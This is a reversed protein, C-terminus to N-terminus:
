GLRSVLLSILQLLLIAIFPTTDFMGVRPVIRRLPALIPETIQDLVTILRNNPPLDLWSLIARIFIILALIDCLVTFFYVLLGM